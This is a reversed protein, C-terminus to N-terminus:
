QSRGCCRSSIRHLGAICMTFHTMTNRLQLIVLIEELTQVSFKRFSAVHVIPKEIFNELVLGPFKWSLMKIKLSLYGVGCFYFLLSTM